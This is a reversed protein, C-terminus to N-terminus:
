MTAAVVMALVLMATMLDGDDAADDDDDDDDDDDADDDNDDGDDEDGDSDSDDHNYVPGSASAPYIHGPVRQDEKPRDEALCKVLRSELHLRFSPSPM